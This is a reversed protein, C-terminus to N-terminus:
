NNELSWIGRRADRAEAEAKRFRTKMSSSYSFNPEWRALGARLLEENLMQEGVWVFALYREYSDFRERDFNLTVRDGAQEVARRTFSSAELGFPEVPTNPKVSEPCNVGILRVRKGNALLLTDGDVVRRVAYEGEALEEPPQQALFGNFRLLFYLALAGLLAWRRLSSPGPWRTQHAPWPM